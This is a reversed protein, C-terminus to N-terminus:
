WSDEDYEEVRLLKLEKDYIEVMDDEMRRAKIVDEEVKIRAYECPLKMNFELDCLGYGINKCVVIYGGSAYASEYKENSMIGTKTWFIYANGSKRNVALFDDDIEIDDYICPLIINGSYDIAGHKNQEDKVVIVNYNPNKEVILYNDRIEKSLAMPGWHGLTEGNLEYYLEEFKKAKNHYRFDRYLEDYETKLINRRALQLNCKYGKLKLSTSLIRIENLGDVDSEDGLVICVYYIPEETDILYSEYSRGDDKDLCSFTGTDYIWVDVPATFISKTMDMIENQLRPKYADLMYNDSFWDKGEKICTVECGPYNVSEFKAKVPTFSRVLFGGTDIVEVKGIQTFSDDPYESNLYALMEEEAPTEKLLLVMITFCLLLFVITLTVVIIIEKISTKKTTEASRPKKIYIDM